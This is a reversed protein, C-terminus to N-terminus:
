TTKNLMSRYVTDPSIEAMALSSSIREREDLSLRTLPPRVAASQMRGLLVLAEKMRNHMDVLPPAYFAQVTHFIRDNIKTAQDMRGKKVAQFLALHLDAIVSGAGSLIGDAGMALSGLLWGSHTSLTLVPRDLSRLERMQREHAQGNGIFDKVAAVNPIAQAIEILTPLEYALGSNFPYQFIIIPLSTSDAIRRFHEIVMTKKGAGGWAFAESPFVLLADAGLGQAQRAMRAAQMSGDDSIGCVVGIGPPITERAISLCRMQEDADLAHMEMSHGNVTIGSIGEVGVLDELHRRFGGENISLDDNFPLLCAPIVGRPVFEDMRM